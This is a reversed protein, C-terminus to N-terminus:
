YGRLGRYYAAENRNRQLNGLCQYYAENLYPACYGHDTSNYGQVQSPHIVVPAQPVYHYGYSPYVPVYQPERKDKGIVYGIVGGLVASQGDTLQAHALKPACSVVLALLLTSCILCIKNLTM